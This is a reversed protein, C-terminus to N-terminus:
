FSWQRLFDFGGQPPTQLVSSTISPNCAQTQSGPELGFQFSFIPSLRHEVKFGLNRRFLRFDNSSGGGTDSRPKLQITLSSATRVFLGDNMAIRM